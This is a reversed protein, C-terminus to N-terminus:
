IPSMAAWRRYRQSPLAPSHARQPDAVFCGAWWRDPTAPCHAPAAPCRAPLRDPSCAPCPLRPPSRYTSPRDPRTSASATATPTSLRSSPATTATGAAVVRLSPPSIVRVTHQHPTGGFLTIALASVRATAAVGLKPQGDVKTFSTRCQSYVAKPLSAVSTGLFPVPAPLGSGPLLTLSALASASEALTAPAAGRALGPYWRAHARLRGLGAKAVGLNVAPAGSIQPARHDPPASQSATIPLPSGTTAAHLSTGSGPVADVGPVGDLGPGASLHAATASTKRRKASDTGCRSSAVTLDTLRSTLPSGSLASVHVLGAAAGATFRPAAPSASAPSSVGASVGAVTLVVATAAARALHRRTRQHM